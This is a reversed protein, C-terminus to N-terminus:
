PQVEALWLSGKEWQERMWEHEPASGQDVDFGVTRWKGPETMEWVLPPEGKRWHMGIRVGVPLAEFADKQIQVASALLVRGTMANGESAKLLARVASLDPARKM